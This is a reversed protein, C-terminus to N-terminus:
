NTVRSHPVSELPLTVDSRSEDGAANWSNGVRRAFADITEVGTNQVVLIRAATGSRALSELRATLDRQHGVALVGWVDTVYGKAIPTVVVGNAGVQPLDAAGPNPVPRKPAEPTRVAQDPMRVTDNRGFWFGFNSWVVASGIVAAFVSLWLVGSARAKARGLQTATQALARGRELQEFELQIRLEENAREQEL